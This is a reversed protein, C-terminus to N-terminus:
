VLAEYSLLILSTLEMLWLRDVSPWHMEARPSGWRRCIGKRLQLSVFISLSERICGLSEKECIITASITHM